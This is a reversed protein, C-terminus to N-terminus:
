ICALREAVAKAMAARDRSECYRAWQMDARDHDKLLKSRQHQARLQQSDHFWRGYDQDAQYLKEVTLSRKNIALLNALRIAVLNLNIDRYLYQNQYKLHKVVGHNEILIDGVLIGEALQVPLIQQTKILKTQTSGVIQDLRRSVSTM